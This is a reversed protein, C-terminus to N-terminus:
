NPTVFPRRLTGPPFEGYQMLSSPIRTHKGNGDEPDLSCVKLLASQRENRAEWVSFSGSANGSSIKWMNHPLLTPPFGVMLAGYHFGGLGEGEPRSVPAAYMDDHSIKIQNMLGSFSFRLRRTFRIDHQLQHLSLNIFSCTESTKETSGRRGGGGETRREDLVRGEGVM